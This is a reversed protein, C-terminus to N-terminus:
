KGPTTEKNLVVMGRIRKQQVLLLEIHSDYEYLRHMSSNYSLPQMGEDLLKQLAPSVTGTDWMDGVNVGASWYKEWRPSAGVESLISASM